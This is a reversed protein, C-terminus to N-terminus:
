ARKGALSRPAGEKVRLKLVAPAALAFVAAFVFFIWSSRRRFESGAMAAYADFGGGPRRMPFFGHHRLASQSLPQRSVSSLCDGVAWNVDVAVEGSRPGPMAPLDYSVVEAADGVNGHGDVWASDIVTKAEIAFTDDIEWKEKEFLM